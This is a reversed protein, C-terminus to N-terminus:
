YGVQLYLCYEGICGNPVQEEVFWAAVELAARRHDTKVRNSRRAMADAVSVLVVICVPQENRRVGIAVRRVTLPRPRAGDGRARPIAAAAAYRFFLVVRDDDQVFV